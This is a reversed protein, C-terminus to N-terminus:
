PRFASTKRRKGIFILSSGSAFPKERVLQGEIRSQGEQLLNDYQRFDSFEQGSGTWAM